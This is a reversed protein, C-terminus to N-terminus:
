NTIYFATYVSIGLAVMFFAIAVVAFYLGFEHGRKVNQKFFRPAVWSTILFLWGIINVSTQITQIDMM